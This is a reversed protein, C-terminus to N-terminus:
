YIKFITIYFNNIIMIIINIFLFSEKNFQKQLATQFMCSGNEGLGCSGITGYGLPLLVMGLPALQWTHPLLWCFGDVIFGGLFGNLLTALGIREGRWMAYLMM